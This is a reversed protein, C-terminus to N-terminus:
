IITPMGADRAYDFADRIEQENNKMTIVGGGMLTLGADRVKKNAEQRQEKTSKLPLHVDKLSIYKVGTEKIMSLAEDLGFKRLTYTTIGVKLGRYPDAVAALGNAAPLGAVVVTTSGLLSTKLFQRRTFSAKM